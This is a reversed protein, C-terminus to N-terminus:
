QETGAHTEESPSSVISPKSSATTTDPATLRALRAELARADFYARVLSARLEGLTASSDAGGGTREELLAEMTQALNLGRDKVLHRVRLLLALDSDSWERHGFASRSPSLIPLEKEWYRLVHEGVGLLREVDSTRYPGAM